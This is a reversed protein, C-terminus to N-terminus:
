EVKGSAPSRALRELMYAIRDEGRLLAGLTRSQGSLLPSELVMRGSVEFDKSRDLISLVHNALGSPPAAMERGGLFPELVAQLVQQFEEKPSPDTM